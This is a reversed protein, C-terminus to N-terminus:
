GYKSIPQNRTDVFKAHHPLVTFSSQDAQQLTALKKLPHRVFNRTVRGKGTHTSTPATARGQTKNKKSALSCVSVFHPL